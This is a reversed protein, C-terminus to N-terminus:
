HLTIDEVIAIYMCFSQYLQKDHRNLIKGYFNNNFNFKM